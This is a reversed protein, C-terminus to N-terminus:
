FDFTVKVVALIRIKELDYKLKENYQVPSQRATQSAGLFMTGCRSRVIKARDAVAQSCRVIKAHDVNGWACRWVSAFSSVGYADVRALAIKLNSCKIWICYKKSVFYTNNIIDPSQSEVTHDVFNINVYVYRKQSVCMKRWSFRWCVFGDGVM